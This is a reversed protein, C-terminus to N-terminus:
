IVSGPQQEPLALLNFCVHTPFILHKYKSHLGSPRILAPSMKGDSEAVHSLFCLPMLIRRHHEAAESKGTNNPEARGDMVAPVWLIAPGLRPKALLGRGSQLAVTGENVQAETLPWSLHPQLKPLLNIELLMSLFPSRGQCTLISLSSADKRTHTHTHDSNNM